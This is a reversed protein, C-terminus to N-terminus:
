RQRGLPDGVEAGREGPDARVEREAAIRGPDRGVVEVHDSGEGLAVGVEGRAPLPDLGAEGPDGAFGTRAARALEGLARAADPLSPEPFVQDAVRAVERPVDAIAPAVRDPVTQDGSGRVPGAGGEMAVDPEAVGIRVPGGDVVVAGKPSYPPHWGM